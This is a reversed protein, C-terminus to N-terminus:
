SCSARENASPPLAAAASDQAYVIPGAQTDQVITTALQTYSTLAHAAREVAALGLSVAAVILVTLVLQATLGTGLVWAASSGVLARARGVAGGNAAPATAYTGAANM